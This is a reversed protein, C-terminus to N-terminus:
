VFVAKAFWVTHNSTRTFPIDIFSHSVVHPVAHFRQSIPTELGNVTFGPTGFVTCILHAAWLAPAVLVVIFLKISEPM